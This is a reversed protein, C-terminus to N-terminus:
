DKNGEHSYWGIQIKSEEEMKWSDTELAVLRLNNVELVRLDSTNNNNISQQEPRLSPM